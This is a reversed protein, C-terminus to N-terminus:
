LIISLESCLLIEVKIQENTDTQDVGLNIDIALNGPASDRATNNFNSAV